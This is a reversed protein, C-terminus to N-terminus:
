IWALCSIGGTLLIYWGDGRAQINVLETLEILILCVDRHVNFCAYLIDFEFNEKKNDSTEQFFFLVRSESSLNHSSLAAIENNNGWERKKRSTSFSKFKEVLIPPLSSSIKLHCWKITWGHDFSIFFRNYLDNVQSRPEIFSCGLWFRIM